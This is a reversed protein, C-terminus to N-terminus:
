EWVYNELLHAYAKKVLNRSLAKNKEINRVSQVIDDMNGPRVLVGCSGNGLVEPIGGSNSAIVPIKFAMAELLVIGFGEIGDTTELSPHIFIDANSFERYLQEDTLSNKIHVRDDLGLTHRLSVLTTLLPGNGAITVRYYKDRNLIAAAHLLTEHGKHKVLRGVSLISTFKYKKKQFQYNSSPLVIKPPKRLIPQVVHLRRLLKESHIGLTYINEAKYLIKQLIKAKISNSFLSLLESGYTYINYRQGTVASLMWPIIAAYINGCEVSLCGKHKGCLHFYPIVLKFLSCKRYIGDFISTFFRLAPEVRPYNEPSCRIGSAFVYDNKNYQYTVISFLYKQIGGIQPPFDLTILLKM